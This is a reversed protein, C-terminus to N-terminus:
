LFYPVYKGQNCGVIPVLDNSMINLDSKFTHAKIRQYWTSNGKMDSLNVLCHFGGSTKIYTLSDPHIISEIFPIIDQLSEGDKLDVDVDIFNKTGNSGQIVDNAMSKININQKNSKINELCQNILEFCAQYQNKPNFGIYVGLNDNNIEVGRNTYTGLRCEWHEITQIIKDKQVTERRLKLASPIDADPNWKRRAILIIFYGENPNLEPLFNVFKQLEARDHILKYNM